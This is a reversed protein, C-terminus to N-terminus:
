NKESGVLETIKIGFNDEVVVVEGRAVLVGNVLLDVPENALKDLEVISGPAFELIEKVEVETRGLEVTIPLKVDLLLDISAHEEGLARRRLPDFEIPRVSPRDSEALEADPATSEAPSIDSLAEPSPTAETEAAAGEDARIEDTM